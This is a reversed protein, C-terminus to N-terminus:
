KHSAANKKIAGRATRIEGLAKQMSEETLRLIDDSFAQAAGKIERAQMQTQSLTESAKQKAKKSIEQQATLTKARDEAKRIIADAEKKAADLIDGRDRVIAKAQKIESPMNIRIDDILDRVREADVVCRGGSLPFNWSKDLMEDLVDLVDDINV